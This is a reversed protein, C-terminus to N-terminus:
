PGRLSAPLGLPSIVGLKIANFMLTNGCTTCMALVFPVITPNDVSLSGRLFERSECVYDNISWELKKCVSCTIPSFKRLYQLAINTQEATMKM